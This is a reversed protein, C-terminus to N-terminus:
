GPEHPSHAGEEGEPGESEGRPAQERLFRESEWALTHEIQILSLGAAETLEEAGLDPQMRLARAIKGAWLEEKVFPREWYRQQLQGLHDSGCAALLREGDQDPDYPHICSSDGVLSFAQSTPSTEVGCLDCLGPLTPESAAPDNSEYM